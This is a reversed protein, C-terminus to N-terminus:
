RSPRSSRPLYLTASPAAKAIVTWYAHRHKRAGPGAQQLTARTTMRWSAPMPCRSRSVLDAHILPANISQAPPAIRIAMMVASANNGAAYLVESLWILSRPDLHFGPPTTRPGDDKVRCHQDSARHDRRGCGEEVLRRSTPGDADRESEQAEPDQEHPHEM